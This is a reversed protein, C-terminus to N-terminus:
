RREGDWPARNLEALVEARTLGIDRLMRDDLEALAQRTTVVRWARRFGAALAGVRPRQWSFSPLPRTHASM